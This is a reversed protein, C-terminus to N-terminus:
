RKKAVIQINSYGFVPITLNDIFTFLDSLPGKIFRILKGAEDNTFLFNRLIGEVRKVRVIKFKRLRISNILENVDYRRLHGVKRDFDNLLGLRYLPARVSPTTLILIGGTKLLRWIRELSLVDDPMHEIVESIIVVDFKGKPFRQPFVLRYFRTNKSVGLFVANKRAMDVAKTSIDIGVVRNNRSALYFDLTGVGCGVDLVKKGSYCYEDLLPTLSQYTFNNRAIIRQQLLRDSHYKEYIEKHQM